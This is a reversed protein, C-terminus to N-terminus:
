KSFSNEVVEKIYIDRRNKVNETSAFPQVITVEHGAELLSNM